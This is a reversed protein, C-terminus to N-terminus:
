PSCTTRSALARTTSAPRAAWAVSTPACRPTAWRVFTRALTQAVKNDKTGAFLPHPHAVLALGRVPANQPLDISIDIAGVPGAVTTVQTHANM